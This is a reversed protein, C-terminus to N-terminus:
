EDVIATFCPGIFMRILTPKRITIYSCIGTTTHDLSNTHPWESAPIKHEFGASPM